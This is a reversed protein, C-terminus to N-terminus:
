HNMGPKVMNITYGSERLFMEVASGSVKMDGGLKIMGALNRRDSWAKFSKTKVYKKLLEVYESTNMVKREGSPNILEIM